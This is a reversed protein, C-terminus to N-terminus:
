GAAVAVAGSGALIAGVVVSPHARRETRFVAVALVNSIFMELSSVMVVTMVDAHALAAFTFIQGFSVAVGAALTWPTAWRFANVLNERFRRIAVGLAAIALLGAFASVMAGFAPLDAAALGFKRAVYSSAYCLAAALGWGYDRAAPAADAAAVDRGFSRRIMVAFAFAILAMGVGDTETVREGLLVWALVASFFPNVRKVASARTAGLTRISVFVFARGLAMAFLGALGFWLVAELLRPDGFDPAAGGEFVLWILTAIAATVFVSLTAGKDGRADSSKVVLVNGAAFCVGAALALGAGLWAEGM